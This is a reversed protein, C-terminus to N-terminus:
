IVKQFCIFFQFFLVYTNLYLIFEVSWDCLNFFRKKGTEREEILRVIKAVSKKM